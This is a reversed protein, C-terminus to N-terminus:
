SSSPFSARPRDRPRAPSRSRLRRADFFFSALKPAGRGRRGEGNTGERVQTCSAKSEYLVILDVEAIDLGEEGVSTAVLVNISGLRFDALLAQQEAQKLGKHGKASAQGVFAAPRLLPSAAALAATLERVSERANCFVIVRPDKSPPAAAGAGGGLVGGLVGGIVGGAGKAAEFHGSVVECLRKVKPHVVGRDIVSDLRGRFGATDTLLM